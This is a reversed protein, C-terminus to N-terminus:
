LAQQKYVQVVFQLEDSKERQMGHWFELTTDTPKEYM